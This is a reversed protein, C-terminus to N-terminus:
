ICPMKQMNAQKRSGVVALTREFNISDLDGKYYLVSPPNDINKLMVPYRDDEFTLYKIGRNVVDSLVKDPNIKDRFKLFNEAKKVSLGEINKLDDSSANFAKEINQFYDFLKLTFASDIQEIASFAIWYKSTM